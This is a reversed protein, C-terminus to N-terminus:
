QFHVSTTYYVEGGGGINKEQFSYFLSLFTGVHQFSNFEWNYIGLINANTWLLHGLTSKRHCLSSGAFSSHSGLNGMNVGTPNYLTAFASRSWSQPPKRDRCSGSQHRWSSHALKRYLRQAQLAIWVIRFSPTSFFASFTPQPALSFARTCLRQWELKFLQTQTGLALTLTSHFMDRVGASRLHSPLHLGLEQFTMLWNSQPYLLCSSGHWVFSFALVSLQPQGRVEVYKRHHKSVPM